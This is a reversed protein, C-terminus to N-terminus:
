IFDISRSANYLRGQYHHNQKMQRHLTNLVDRKNLSWRPAILIDKPGDGTVRHIVIDPSLLELCHILIRIYIEKDLAQFTGNKYDEALDTGELIHLLQLKIGFIKKQNLYHITEYMHTETEGPLGLIV